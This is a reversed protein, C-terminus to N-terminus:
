EDEEACSDSLLILETHAFCLNVLADSGMGKDPCSVSVLGAWCSGGPLGSGPLVWEVTQKHASLHPNKIFHNLFLLILGHFHFRYKLM